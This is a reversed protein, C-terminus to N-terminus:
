VPNSTCIYCFDNCDSPKTANCFNKIEDPNTRGKIKWMGKEGREYALNVINSIHKEEGDKINFSAIFKKNSRYSAIADFSFDTTAM